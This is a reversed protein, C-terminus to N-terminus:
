CLSFQCDSTQDIKTIMVGTYVHLDPVKIVNLLVSEEATLFDNSVCCIHVYFTYSIAILILLFSLM